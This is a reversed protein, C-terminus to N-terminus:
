QRPVKTSSDARTLTEGLTVVTASVDAPMANKADYVFEATDGIRNLDFADHDVLLVVADAASLESEGVDNTLPIRAELPEVHPDVLTVDVRDCLGEFVEIAPSRRPDGVNPKYAAGLAIVSATYLPVGRAELATTVSGVVREPM